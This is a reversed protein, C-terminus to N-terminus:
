RLTGLYATIDQADRANLGTDPMANGPVFSQPHMLWDVMNKPTNRLLGALFWFVGGAFYGNLPM